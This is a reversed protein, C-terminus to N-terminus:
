IQRTLTSAQVSGESGLPRKPGGDHAVEKNEDFKPASPPPAELIISNDSYGSSGSIM